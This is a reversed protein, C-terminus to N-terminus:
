IGDLIAQVRALEDRNVTHGLGPYIRTDVAGGIRALERASEEVRERPVHPDRDSCGLFV